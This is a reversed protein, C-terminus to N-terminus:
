TFSSVAVSHKWCFKPLVFPCLPSLACGNEYFGKMLVAERERSRGGGVAPPDRM